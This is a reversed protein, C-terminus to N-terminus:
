PVGTWSLQPVHPCQWHGQKLAPVCICTSHLQFLKYSLIKALGALMLPPQDGIRILAHKGYAAIYVWVSDAFVICQM